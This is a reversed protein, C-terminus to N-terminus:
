ANQIIWPNNLSIQGCKVYQGGKLGFISAVVNCSDGLFSCGRHTLLKQDQMKIWHNHLSVYGYEM